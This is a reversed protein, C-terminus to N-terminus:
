RAASTRTGASAEARRRAGLGDAAVDIERGGDGLEGPQRGRGVPLPAAKEVGAARRARIEVHGLIMEAEAHTLASSTCRRGAHPDLLQVVRRPGWRAACGRPAALPRPASAQALPEGRPGLGISPLVDARASNRLPPDESGGSLQWTVNSLIFVSSTRLCALDLQLSEASSSWARGSFSRPRRSAGRIPSSSRSCSSIGSTTM